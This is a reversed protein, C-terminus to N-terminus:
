PCSQGFSNMFLHFDTLDVCSDQDLDAAGNYAGGGSCSNWANALVVLDRGDVRTASFGSVDM